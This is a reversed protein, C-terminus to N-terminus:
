GAPFDYLQAPNEVLVKHRASEDPVWVVARSRHHPLLTKM